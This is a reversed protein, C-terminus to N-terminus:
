TDNSRVVQANISSFSFCTLKERNKQEICYNENKCWEGVGIVEVAKTLSIIDALM